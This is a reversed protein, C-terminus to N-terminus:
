GKIAGIMAGKVFYKQLFPYVVMLPILMVMIGASKVGDSAVQAMDEPQLNNMSAMISQSRIMNQVLVTLNYKETDNIYILVSMFANWFGVGYFLAITALIPLSLPLLIKWIYAMEGCGDIRAAEEIEEPLNEFYTKMILMNYVSVLSPLWLAAYSNILGLSKIVLYSPIMGGSFLMTFVIALTLQRRAFFAKKSLPYAALITFLLSLGVGVVTLTVSNMFAKLISSGQFLISYSMLTMDVPWFTVSGSMVAHSDSLSVAAINMIPLLCSLGALTLVFYNLAYFLREGKTTRM